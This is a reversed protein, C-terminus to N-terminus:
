EYYDGEVLPKVERSSFGVHYRGDGLESIIGYQLRQTSEEFRGPVPHCAASIARSNSSAIPIGRRYRLFGFGLITLIMAGGLTLLLTLALESWGIANVSENVQLDGDISYINVQAVFISQSLLWHILSIQPFNALLVNELLEINWSPDHTVSALESPIVAGFGLAWQVAFTPVLHNGNYQILLLLSLGVLWYSLCALLTLFWRLPSAGSFWRRRESKYIHDQNLESWYTGSQPNSLWEGRVDRASHAGLGETTPDPNELFSAVAQGITILPDFQLFTLYAFALGKIVNCLIVAYLLGPILEVSAYNPVYNQNFAAICDSNTMNQMSGNKLSGNNAKTYLELLTKNAQQITLGSEQAGSYFFVGTSSSDSSSYPAGGLFDQSVVYAQYNIASTTSFIVSNYLLHLPITSLTLSLWCIRRNWGMFRWNGFGSIGIDLVKGLPHAKDVNARTPAVLVQM